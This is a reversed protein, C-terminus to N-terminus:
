GSLDLFIDDAIIQEGPKDWDVSLDDLTLCGRNGEKMFSAYIKCFPHEGSHDVQVKGMRKCRECSGGYEIEAIRKMVFEKRAGNNYIANRFAGMIKSDRSKSPNYKKFINEICKVYSIDETIGTKNNTVRLTIKNWHNPILRVNGVDCYEFDSWRTPHNFM